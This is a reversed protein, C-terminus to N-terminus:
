TPMHSSPLYSNFGYTTSWYYFFTTIFNARALLIFLYMQWLLHSLYSKVYTKIAITSANLFFSICYCHSGNKKNTKFSSWSISLGVLPHFLSYTFNFEKSVIASSYFSFLLLCFFIYFRPAQKHQANSIFKHKEVVEM